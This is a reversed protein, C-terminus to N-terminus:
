IFKLVILLVHFINKEDWHGKTKDIENGLNKNVHGAIGSCSDQNDELDISGM